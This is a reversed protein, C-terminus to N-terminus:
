GRSQLVQFGQAHIGQPQHRDIGARTIVAIVHRIVFVDVRIVARKGVKISKHFGGVFFAKMHNQVPYRVVGRTLM